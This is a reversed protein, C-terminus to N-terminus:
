LLLKNFLVYFNRAPIAEYYISFTKGVIKNSQPCKKKYKHLPIHGDLPSHVYFHGLHVYVGSTSMSTSPTSMSTDQTSMSVGSSSMSRCYTSM